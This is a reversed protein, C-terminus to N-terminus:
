FIVKDYLYTYFCGWDHAMVVKKDFKSLGVEDFTAKMRQVIMPFDQGWKIQDQTKSTNPFNIYLLRNDKLTNNADLPEWVQHNDPWGQLFVVIDKSGSKGELFYELPEVQTM